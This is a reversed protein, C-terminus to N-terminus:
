SYWAYFPSNWLFFADTKVPTKKKFVVSVGEDLPEFSTPLLLPNEKEKGEAILRDASELDVARKISGPAVQLLYPFDM